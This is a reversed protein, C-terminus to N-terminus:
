YVLTGGMGARIPWTGTLISCRSFELSQDLFEDQVEELGEARLLGAVDWRTVEQYGDPVLSLLDTPAAGGSGADTDTATATTTDTDAQSCSVTLFALAVLAILAPVVRLWLNRIGVSQSMSM